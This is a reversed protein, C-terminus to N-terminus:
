RTEHSVKVIRALREVTNDFFETWWRKLAQAFAAEDVAPLTWVDAAPTDKAPITIGCYDCQHIAVPTNDELTGRVITTSDHKCKM